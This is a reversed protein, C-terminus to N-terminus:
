TRDLWRKYQQWDREVVARIEEETLGAGPHVEKMYEPYEAWALVDRYDLEAAQMQRRLEAFNGDALKLAALCVRHDERRRGRDGYSGLIATVGEFEAPDFDRRVVREVDKANVKPVPQEMM